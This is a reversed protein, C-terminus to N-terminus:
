FWSNIRKQCDAVLQSKSEFTEKVIKFGVFRIAQIPIFLQSKSEFTEKVIKFGVWITNPRGQPGNHNAKLHKKSLKLVLLDVFLFM